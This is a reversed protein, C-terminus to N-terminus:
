VENEQPHDPNAAETRSDNDFARKEWFVVSEKKM